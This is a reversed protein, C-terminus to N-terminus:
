RGGEPTIVTFNETDYTNYCIGVTYGKQDITNINFCKGHIWCYEHELGYSAIKSQDPKQM